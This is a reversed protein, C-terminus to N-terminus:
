SMVWLGILWVVNTVVCAWMGGWSVGEYFMAKAVQRAHREQVMRM